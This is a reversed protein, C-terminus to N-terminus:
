PCQLYSGSKCSYTVRRSSLEFICMILSLEATQDRTLINDQYLLVKLPEWCKRQSKYGKFSMKNFNYGRVMDKMNVVTVNECANLTM